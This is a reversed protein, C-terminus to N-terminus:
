KTETPNSFYELLGYLRSHERRRPGQEKSLLHRGRTAHLGEKPELNHKEGPRLIANRTRSERISPPM